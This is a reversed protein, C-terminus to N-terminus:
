NKNKARKSVSKLLFVLKSYFLLLGLISFLGGKFLIWGIHLGVNPAGFVYNLAIILGLFVIYKLIQRLPLRPLKLIYRTVFISFFMMLVYSILTTYAAVQYSYGKVGIFYWNLIINIVGSSLVILALYANKKVYFIGRNAFSSVGYFVYAGVIVPAIPLADLFVPSSSLLTGADVAFLMLFGAGLILIKTMNDVERAVSGYDKKNMYNYYSPNAGNLLAFVLGQYIMGIKYAFAYQGTEAHGITSNIFWQDFSTLIHNSLAFPILPISYILAYKIHSFAIKKFSIYERLQVLVYFTLLLTGFWEGIIKGMFTYSSEEGGEVYVVNTFYILGLITFAFKGYRWVVKITAYKKSQKVAVLIQCYFSYVVILYTTSILWVILHTPLNILDAVEERFLFLIGGQGWFLITITIFISGLFDEFDVKHEEFYYRAISSHLSLTLLTAIITVYTLFVNVIGYEDPTLYATFVPLTIIGLLQVLVTGFFYTSVHKFTDFFSFKRLQHLINRFVM